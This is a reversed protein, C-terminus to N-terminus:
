SVKEQGQAQIASDMLLLLELVSRFSQERRGELWTVTGQWSANQRFLVKVTFTATEGQRPQEEPPGNIHVPPTAFIRTTAFAQPFDMTDLAREMEILFQSTSLFKCGEEMYPNYFRGVPVGNQYSDICVTTTRYEAGWARTTM